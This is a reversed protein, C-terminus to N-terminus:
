TGGAITPGGRGYPRRGRRCASATPCCGAASGPSAAMQVDVNIAPGYPVSLDVTAWTVALDQLGVDIGDFLTGKDAGVTPLAERYMLNISTTAM